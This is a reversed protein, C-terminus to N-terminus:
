RHSGYGVTSVTDDFPIKTSRLHLLAERTKPTPLPVYLARDLRGPRLFLPLYYYNESLLGSLILSDVAVAEYQVQAAVSEYTSKYRVFQSSNLTQRAVIVRQQEKQFVLQSCQSIM